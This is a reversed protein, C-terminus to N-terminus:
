RLLSIKRNAQLGAANMRCLYIGSGVSIGDEGRGDWQARYEGPARVGHFLTRVRQGCVNYIELRVPQASEGGIHYPIVTHANFPNPYAADLGFEAPRPSPGQGESVGTSPDVIRRVDMQQPDTTGL